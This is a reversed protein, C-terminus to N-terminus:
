LKNTFGADVPFTVGTVYKGEDSVLYAIAASIDEPELMGVPMPNQLHPGGGDPSNKLFDQMQDNMAMMTNVATPHVTNVRISQAALANALTRMLGVIGHKSAAYALDALTLDSEKWPQEEDMIAILAAKLRQAEFEGLGSREYRSVPSFEVPPAVDLPAEDPPPAPPTPSQRLVEPVPYEATEYRFIEPQRLGMYGIAYVLVAMALSIHEDRLLAAVDAINLATALVWIGGASATLALLWNLNVRTTNSYSHEVQRRHRRLYLVTAITYGLGSVYKFPDLIVLQLPIEGAIWRDLMALKADASMFYYPSTAITNIAVPVFHLLTRREFQWSRDSAAVAYLYVLPGFVWPMQYSIGFLHPFHRVVGAGHYVTSALYITFAAMLAALLRNATRNNRQAVLVGTLLLGQLAGVLSVLQIWDLTLSAM